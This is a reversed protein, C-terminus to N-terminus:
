EPAAAARAVAPDPDAALEALRSRARPDSSARLAGAAAIRVEPTDDKSLALLPAIAPEGRSGGLATAIAARVFASRDGAAATLAAVDVRAGMSAIATAAALRTRWDADRLALYLAATLDTAGPRAIAQMAAERVLRRDDTLAATLAARAAETGIKGAVSVARAALKPDDDRTRNVVVAAIREGITRLAAAAPASLAGDTLEGLALGDDRRDLDILASLAADRHGGLAAIVADAAAAEHGVLVDATPTAVTLEGPLGRIMTPLDLKGARMPYDDVRLAATAAGRGSVRGLAWVITSRDQGGRALYARVLPATARADGLQGLAYAALRQTEGANDTVATTLWPVAAAGGRALGAACAARVLDDRDRTVALAAKVGRPDRAGGLAFCALASVSPRNDDLATLLAGTARADDVGALTFVAAERLGVEGHRAIPLVEPVVRADGLRGAAVLAAIRNDLDLANVLTGIARPASPDLAAPEQKAVRVLPLAAAKNGLHGLLAVAITRQAPATDDGLADLLAKMGGHGLRDLETRAAARLEPTGHRAQNVLRPVYHVYLEVLLQRYVQKHSMISSLPALVKELEGLSQNIEELAIAAKGAKQLTDDDTAQRLIRRYLEAAATHEIRQQHLAALVFYAKWNRRDLEIVRQYAAVADDLRQMDVYRAGLREFAVPDNPSKELAKQSWAIAEADQHAETKIEAIQNYAERQRAPDKEALALLLAVAKDYAREARYAKVLDLLTEQDDPALKLLRELTERPQGQQGFRGYYAVLFYGAELDPPTKTFGREWRMRYEDKHGGSDWRPLLNVIRTRVERRASRDSPKIWLSLAKEWDAMAEAFARQRELIQARGKYLEPNDPDLKIAKAYYVLGETPADHEALVDGLRAYGTASKTGAIRKWTAMAKDVQGRQHYQEGLTILHDPDDPELRALREFAALALDEKNWRLYLDAVASMVAPDTPFRGEIQKAASLAKAEQHLRWYREALEIQFRAEGPAVRAVVEYQKLAEDDRGTAELLQILRRQVELEYPAKAVAKQYATVAQDQDGTEEYLRALTGWEFAGRRAAPWEKEYYALLTALDQKRRYIDVIRATLETELYYGRPVLKIARRYTTIAAADDGKQEHAQGLRAVVEVKRAPDSGLRGEADQYVAIADDHKGAAVLADGLELRLAVNGPELAIYQEFYGRAGDIDKAALALDALARLAKMKVPKGPNTAVAKDLATRAEALKGTTRYLTGLEVLVAADTRAASAREFLTLATADDRENRALRGLVVLTAFDDPKSALATEYETRLLAVTRYRRYLNLLKALADGDSPNRALIGKLRAVVSKDFPDRQVDWDDGQAHAPPAAAAAASLVVVLAVLWPTRRM